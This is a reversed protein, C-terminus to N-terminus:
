LRTMTTESRRLVGLAVHCLSGHCPSPSCVPSFPPRPYCFCSLRPAFFGNIVYIFAPLFSSSTGQITNSDGSSFDGAVLLLLVRDRIDPLYNVARSYNPIFIFPLDFSLSLFRIFPLLVPAFLSFSSSPPPYLICLTSYTSLTPTNVHRPFSPFSPIREETRRATTVM